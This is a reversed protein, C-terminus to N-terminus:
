HHRYYRHEDPQEYKEGKRATIASPVIASKVLLDRALLDGGPVRIRRRRGFRSIHSCVLLILLVCYAIRLVCYAIRMGDLHVTAFFCLSGLRRRTMDEGLGVPSASPGGSRSEALSPGSAASCERRCSPEQGSVRSRSM